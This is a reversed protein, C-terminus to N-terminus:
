AQWTFRLKKNNLIADIIQADGFLEFARSMMADTTNWGAFMQLGDVCEIPRPHILTPGHKAEGLGTTIHVSDESWEVGPPFWYAYLHGLTSYDRHGWPEFRKARWDYATKMWGMEALHKEITM